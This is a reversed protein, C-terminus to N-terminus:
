LAAFHLEMCACRPRFRLAHAKDAATLGQCTLLPVVRLLGGRRVAFSEQAPSVRRLSAVVRQRHSLECPGASFDAPGQHKGEQMSM